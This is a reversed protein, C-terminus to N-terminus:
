VGVIGRLVSLPLTALALWAALNPVAVPMPETNARGASVIEANSPICVPEAVGGPVSDWGQPVPPPEIDPVTAPMREALLQELTALDYKRLTNFSREDGLEILRRAIAQKSMAGDEVLTTDMSTVAVSTPCAFRGLM